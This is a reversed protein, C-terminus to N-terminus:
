LRLSFRVCVCFLGGHGVNRERKEGRSIRLNATVVCHIPFSHLQWVHLDSSYAKLAANRQPTFGATTDLEYGRREGLTLLPPCQVSCPSIFTPQSESHVMRPPTGRVLVVRHLLTRHCPYSSVVPASPHSCVACVFMAHTVSAALLVLPSCKSRPIGVMRTAEVRSTPLVNWAFRVGDTDESANIFDTCM